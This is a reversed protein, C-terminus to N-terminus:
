ANDHDNDGEPNTIKEIEITAAIATSARDTLAQYLTDETYGSHEAATRALSVAATALGGVLERVLGNDIEAQLMEDCRDNDEAALSKCLEVAQVHGRLVRIQEHSDTM